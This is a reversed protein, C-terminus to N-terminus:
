CGKQKSHTYGAKKADAESGFEVRNAANLAKAAKCSSLYYTHGQKSGVFQGGNMATQKTGEQKVSEHKPADQKATEKTSQKTSEKTTTKKAKDSKTDAPKTNAPKTAVKTKTDKATTKKSDDSKTSATKSSKKGGQQKAVVATDQKARTSAKKSSTKQAHLPAAILLLASVALALRM